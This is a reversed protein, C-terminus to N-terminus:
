NSITFKLDLRDLLFLLDDFKMSEPNNIRNRWTRGTGNGGIQEYDMDSFKLWMKLVRSLESCSELRSQAKTM